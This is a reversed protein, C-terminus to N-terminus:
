FAYELGATAGYYFVASNCNVGQAQVSLVPASILTAQREAFSRPKRPAFPSLGVSISEGTRVPSTIHSQTEPIQGPALAVGQLCMAEYALKLSLRQTVQYKCALDIEDLLAAHNTAASESYPTRYISVGTTEEADNDFIGAKVVADISFRGREFLKGNAGIQFGYLDNTTNANWFPKKRQPPLTGQLDEWLNVWRFGALMTVRACPDWRVNLEANDLRSAYDWAMVQSRFHDQTQLFGGPARMVLWDHPIPGVSQYDNWGDIQFYSLELDYGDDDHRILGVRPGGSFGQQLDNASLVATGTTSSPNDKLPVLRLAAFSVALKVKRARKGDRAPLSLTKHGQVVQAGVWPRLHARRCEGAHGPLVIRDHCSRIV